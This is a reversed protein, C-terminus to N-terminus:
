NGDPTAQLPATGTQPTATLGAVPPVLTPTTGFFEAMDPAQAAAGPLAACGAAECILRLTSEHQYLTTSQYAMKGKPSIVLMAIHGGGLTNDTDSEDFVIVLLGDNQFPASKLLPDINTQLWADATSLPCDHADDCLNPVIFSFNPFANNALDHAFGVNPDEFPVLNQQQPTSNQVDSFYPFPNHRVAYQGTNGGLYGVSPLSEAYSKWTKGGALLERVLNDATVPFSSPTQGDDNTLTQGTSLMFYNGISPHTDAFYNTALGYQNALSNLYPMAPNGVVNTYSANEEVVIFAHNVQPVQGTNTNARVQIEPHYGAWCGTDLLLVGAPSSSPSCASYANAHNVFIGKPDVPSGILAYVGHTTDTSINLADYPCGASAAFCPASQGIPSYGYHTTNFAVTVIIDAPLPSVHQSTFDVAIPVALGHYCTKDNSDYWQTPFTFGYATDNGCVPDASPRYPVNFTQTTTALLGGVSPGPGVAYVNITIPESFAAGPTTVCNGSHWNGSQCAWSSLIVTVQGLTGSSPSALHFADGLENFAYAEPGESVVNGPLPNPTSDYVVQSQAAALPTASVGAFFLLVLATRFACGSPKWSTHTRTRTVSSCPGM